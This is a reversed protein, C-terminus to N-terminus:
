TIQYDGTMSPILLNLCRNQYDLAQSDGDEDGRCRHFHRASFACIAYRIILDTFALQSVRTEFTRFSDAIDTWQAMHDTFNRILIAEVLSLTMTDHDLNEILSSGEEALNTLTSADNLLHEWFMTDENPQSAVDNDTV